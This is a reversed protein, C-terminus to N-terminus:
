WAVKHWYIYYYVSLAAIIDGICESFMQQTGVIHAVCSNISHTSILLVEDRAM